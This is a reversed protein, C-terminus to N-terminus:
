RIEILFVREKQIRSRGKQRRQRGRRKLPATLTHNLLTRKSMHQNGQKIWEKIVQIKNNIFGVSKFCYQHVFTWSNLDLKSNEQFSSVFIKVKPSPKKWEYIEFIQREQAEFIDYLPTTSRRPSEPSKCSHIDECWYNSLFNFASERINYREQKSLLQKKQGDNRGTCSRVDITQDFPTEYNDYKLLPSCCLTWSNNEICKHDMLGLDIKVASLM